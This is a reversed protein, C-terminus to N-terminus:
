GRQKQWSNVITKLPHPRYGAEELSLLYHRSSIPSKTEKTEHFHGHINLDFEGGAIPEHSFIIKYGYMEWSFNQCCFDFGNSMYWHANRQDHNGLILIKRGPLKPVVDFWLSRSGLLVDGLHIVLDDAGVDRNWAKIIKEQFSIPRLQLKTALAIHGFHTDTIVFVKM